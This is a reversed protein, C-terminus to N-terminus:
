CCRRRRLLWLLAATGGVWLSGQLIPSPLLATLPVPARESAVVSSPPLVGLIRALNDLTPGIQSQERRGFEDHVLSFPFFSPLVFPLAVGNEIRTGAHDPLMSFMWIQAGQPAFPTGVRWAFRFPPEWIVTRNTSVYRIGQLEQKALFTSGVGMPGDGVVEVSRVHGSGALQPHRMPDSVVEWVAEMPAAIVGSVSAGLYRFM